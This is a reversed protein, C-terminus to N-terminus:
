FQVMLFALIFGAVAAAIGYMFVTYSLRLLRYKKGLVLGQYYTDRIMSGYLFEGDDLMKLMGYTYDDLSMRFYNGFFLLNAQKADIEKITFTGSTITPRTALMAIIITVVNVMLLLIVPVLLSRNSQSQGVLINLLVSIVIANVQIMIHAKNDAQASLQQNKNYTTRFVTEVGREPKGDKKKKKEEQVPTSPTALPLPEAPMPRETAEEVTHGNKGAKGAKDAAKQKLTALNQAKKAGLLSECYDTQYRHTEMFRIMRQRWEDKGIPAEALAETEKRLARNKDDFGETGLYFHHADAAIKEPLTASSAPNEIAFLCKKVALVLDPELGQDTLFEAAFEASAQARNAPHGPHWYGADHLLTAALTVFRDREDLRYHNILQRAVAVVERTHGAHHYVLAPADPDQFHSDVFDEIRQLIQTYLTM